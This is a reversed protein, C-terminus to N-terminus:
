AAPFGAPIAWRDMRTTRLDDRLIARDDTMLTLDETILGWVGRLLCRDDPMVPLLM